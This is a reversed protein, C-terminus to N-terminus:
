SGEGFGLAGLQFVGDLGGALHSLLAGARGQALQGHAFGPGGVVQGILQLGQAAAQARVATRQAIGLRGVVGLAQLVQGPFRGVLVPVAHQKGAEQGLVAQQQPLWAGGHRQVVAFGQHLFGVRGHVQARLRLPLQGALEGRAHQRLHELRLARHELQGKRGLVLALQLAQQSRQRGLHELGAVAQAPDVLEPLGPSLVLDVGRLHLNAGVLQGGDGLEEGLGVHHVEQEM